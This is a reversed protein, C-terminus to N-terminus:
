CGGSDCHFLEFSTGQVCIQPNDFSKVTLREFAMSCSLHAEHIIAQVLCAQFVHLGELHAQSFIFVEELVTSLTICSGSVAHGKQTVVKQFIGNEWFLDLVKVGFDPSM